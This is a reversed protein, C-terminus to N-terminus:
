PNPIGWIHVVGSTDGWAFLRGDPSFKVAYTPQRNEVLLEKADVSWIQWGADIGIALLTDDPSFSLGALSSAPLPETLIQRGLWDQLDWVVVSETMVAALRSRSSNFAVVIPTGGDRYQVSWRGRDSSTSWEDLKITGADNAYALWSGSADMAGSTISTPRGDRGVEGVITALESPKRTITNWIEYGGSDIIALWQGDLSLAVDTAPLGYRMTSPSTELILDGSRTDWLRAGNFGADHDAEKALGGKGAGTALFRAQSDISVAAMGIPGVRLTSLLEGNHIRWRRLVGEEGYVVLLEQSDPTFALAAIPGHASAPLSSLEVMSKSNVSMLPAVPFVSTLAPTPSLALRSPPKAIQIGGPQCSSTLVAVLLLWLYRRM